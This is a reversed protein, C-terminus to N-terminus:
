REQCGAPLPHLGAPARTETDQTWSGARHPQGLDRPRVAEEHSEPAESLQAEPALGQAQAPSSVEGSRQLSSHVVAMWVTASPSLLCSSSIISKRDPEGLSLEPASSISTARALGLCRTTLGEGAGAPGPSGTSPSGAGETKRGSGKGTSLVTQGARYWCHSPSVPEM